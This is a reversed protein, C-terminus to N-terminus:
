LTGEQQKQNLFNKHMFFKVAFLYPYSAKDQLSYKIVTEIMKFYAFEDQQKSIISTSKGSQLVILMISNLFNKIFTQVLSIKSFVDLTFPPNYDELGQSVLDKQIDGPAQDLLRYVKAESTQFLTL